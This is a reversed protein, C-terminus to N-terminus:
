YFYIKLQVSKDNWGSFRPWSGDLAALGYYMVEFSLAPWPTLTIGPALIYRASHLDFFMGGQLDIVSLIERKLLMLFLTDKWLDMRYPNQLLPDFPIIKKYISGSENHYYEMVLMVLPTLTYMSGLLAKFTYPNSSVIYSFPAVRLNDRNSLWAMEGHIELRSIFGVYDLGLSPSRFPVQHLYFSIEHAAAVLGIKAALEMRRKRENYFPLLTLSFDPLLLEGKCALIGEREQQPRFPNKAPELMDTPNWAYGTGWTVRQKGIRLLFQEGFTHDWYTELVQLRFQNNEPQWCSYLRNHMNLFNGGSLDANGYVM